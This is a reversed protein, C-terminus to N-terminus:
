QQQQQHQYKKVAESMEVPSTRVDGAVVDPDQEQEQVSVNITRTLGDTATTTIVRAVSLLSPSLMQVSKPIEIIQSSHSHIAANASAAQQHQQQTLRALRLTCLASHLLLVQKQQPVIPVIPLIPLTHTPDCPM